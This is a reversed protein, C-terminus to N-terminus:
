HRNKGIRAGFRAHLTVANHCCGSPAPPARAPVVVQVSPDSSERFKPLPPKYRTGFGCVFPETKPQTRLFYRIGNETLVVSCCDKTESCQPSQRIQIIKGLIIAICAFRKSNLASLKAARWQRFSSSHFVLLCCALLPNVILQGPGTPSFTRQRQDLLKKECASVQFLRSTTVLGIIFEHIVNEPVDCIARECNDFSFFRRSIGKNTLTLSGVVSVSDLGTM